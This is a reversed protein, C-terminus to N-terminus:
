SVSPRDGVALRRFEFQDSIWISPTGLVWLHFGRRREFLITGVPALLFLGLLASNLPILVAIWSSGIDVGATFQLYLPGLTFGVILGVILFVGLLMRGVTTPRTRYVGAPGCKAAVRRARFLGLVPGFPIAAGLAALAWIPELRAWPASYWFFLM